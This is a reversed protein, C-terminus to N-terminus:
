KFHKHPKVTVTVEVDGAEADPIEDGEGHIVYKEGHPAGKDVSVDFVKTDKKVKQGKCKKCKSGEAIIEGKGECSDCPGTRQTYMGPGLMTM